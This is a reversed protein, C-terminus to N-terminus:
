LHMLVAEEIEDDADAAAMRRWCSGAGLTALLGLVRDPDVPWTGSGFAELVAAAGGAPAEPLTSRAALGATMLLVEAPAVGRGLGAAGVVGALVGAVGGLASRVFWIACCFATLWALAVFALAICDPDLAIPEDRL